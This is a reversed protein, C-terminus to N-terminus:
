APAIEVPIGNLVANGSLADLLAEDASCTRTSAPSGRPSASSRARRRRPRPRAAPQRRRADDRRDGRGARRARRRALARARARRGRARARARGRSPRPAHLAGQGERAGAPQADVLQELAPPPTRDPRVRRRARAARAARAPAPRRGVLLEPALEIRAARPRSCRRCARRSRASTSATSPPRRAERALPRGRRRRLPRRLPRRAADPRALREPGPESASSRARTPKALRGPVRAPRASRQASCDRSSRARRAARPDCRERARRARAAIEWPAERGRAEAARRRGAERPQAGLLRPLRHRLQTRELPTTTPLIVDALRTTENLYIDISVM